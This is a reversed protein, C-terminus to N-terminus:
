LPKGKEKKEKGAKRLRKEREAAFIRQSIENMERNTSEFIRQSIENIERNAPEYIRQSSENMERNASEYIRQSSENMERNASELIRQSSENMERNASESIRQCSENMERKASEFIRQCKEDVKRQVSELATAEDHLAMERQLELQRLQFEPDRFQESFSIKSHTAIRQKVLLGGNKKSGNKIHHCRFNAETSERLLGEREAM